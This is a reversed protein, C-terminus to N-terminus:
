AGPEALGLVQWGAAGTRVVFTFTYTSRGARVTATAAVGDAPPGYRLSLLAPAQRAPNIQGLPDTRASLQHALAPLGPPAGSLGERYAVYHLAFSHAAQQAAAPVPPRRSATVSTAVMALDPPTLNIVQWHGRTYRFSVAFVANRGSLDAAMLASGAASGSLYRMRTGRLTITRARAGVPLRGAAAATSRVAASAAPLSSAQGAGDIYRLYASAFAQLTPTPSPATTSTAGSSQRSLTLAVAAIAGIVAAALVIDLRVRPRSM